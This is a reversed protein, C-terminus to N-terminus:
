RKWPRLRELLQSNGRKEWRTEMKHRVYFQARASLRIYCGSPSSLDCERAFRGRQFRSTHSSFQDSNVMDESPLGDFGSCNIVTIRSLKGKNVKPLLATNKPNAKFMFCDKSIVFIENQLECECVALNSIEQFLQSGIHLPM